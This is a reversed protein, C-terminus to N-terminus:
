ESFFNRSRRQDSSPILGHICDTQSVAAFRKKKKVVTKKLNCEHESFGLSSDAVFSEFLEFDYKEWFFFEGWPDTTSVEDVDGIWRM